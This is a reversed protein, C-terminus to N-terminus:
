GRKGNKNEVPRVIEIVDLEISKANDASMEIIGCVFNDQLYYKRVVDHNNLRNYLNESRGIYIVEGEYILFYLGSKKPIDSQKYYVNCRMGQVLSAQTCLEVYYDHLALSAKNFRAQVPRLKKRNARYVPMTEESLQWVFKKYRLQYDLIAITIASILMQEVGELGELLRATKKSSVQAVPIADTREDEDLYRTDEILAAVQREVAQKAVNIVTDRPFVLHPEPLWKGEELEKKAEQFEAFLKPYM